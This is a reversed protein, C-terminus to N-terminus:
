YSYDHAKGIFKWCECSKAYYCKKYIQEYTVKEYGKAMQYLAAAAAKRNKEYPRSVDTKGKQAMAQTTQKKCIPDKLKM